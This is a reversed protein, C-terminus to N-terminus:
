STKLLHTLLSRLIYADPSLVQWSEQGMSDKHLYEIVGETDDATKRVLRYKGPPEGWTLVVSPYGGPCSEGKCIQWLPQTGAASHETRLRTYVVGCGTCGSKEMGSQDCVMPVDPEKGACM